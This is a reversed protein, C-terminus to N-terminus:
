AHEEESFKMSFCQAMSKHSVPISFVLMKQLVENM